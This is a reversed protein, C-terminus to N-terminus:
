AGREVSRGGSVDFALVEGAARDRGAQDVRVRVECEGREGSDHRGRWEGLPEGAEDGRHLRPLDGVVLRGSDDAGLLGEGAADRDDAVDRVTGGLDGRCTPRPQAADVVPLEQAQGGLLEPLLEGVQAIGLVRGLVSRAHRAPERRM